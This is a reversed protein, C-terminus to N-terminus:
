EVSTAFLAIWFGAVSLAAFGASPVPRGAAYAGLAAILAQLGYYLAFARSAYSIIEFLDASWTLAIGITALLVYGMRASVRNGTLEAILGGAGGTDAVAASFQASLAALVLLIPLVLAVQAM